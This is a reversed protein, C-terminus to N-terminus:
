LPRPGSAIPRAVSDSCAPPEIGPMRKAACASSSNLVELVSKVVVVNMVSVSAATASPVAGGSANEANVSASSLWFRGRSPLTVIALPM